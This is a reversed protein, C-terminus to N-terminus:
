CLSSDAQSNCEAAGPRAFAYTVAVHCDAERRM